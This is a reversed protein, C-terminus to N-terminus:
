VVYDDLSRIKLDFTAEEMWEEGKSQLNMLIFFIETLNICFWCDKYQSKIKIPLFKYEELCQLILDFLYKIYWLDM